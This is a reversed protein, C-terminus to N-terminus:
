GNVFLDVAENFAEEDYLLEGTEKDYKYNGYADTIAFQMKDIAGLAIADERMANKIIAEDINKDGTLDTEIDLSAIGNVSAGYGLTQYAANRFDDRSYESRDKSLTGSSMQSGYSLANASDESQNVYDDM